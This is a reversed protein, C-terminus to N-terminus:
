SNFDDNVVVVLLLLPFDQLVIRVSIHKNYAFFTHFLRQKREKKKKTTTQRNFSAPHLAAKPVVAMLVVVM